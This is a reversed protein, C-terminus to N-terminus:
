KRMTKNQKHKWKIKSRREEKKRNRRIVLGGEGKRMWNEVEPIKDLFGSNEFEKISDKFEKLNEFYKESETEDKYDELYTKWTIPIGNYTGENNEPNFFFYKIKDDSTIEIYLIGNNNDLSNFLKKFDKNKEFKYNKDTDESFYPYMNNQSNLDKYCIWKISPELIEDKYTIPFSKGTKRVYKVREKIAKILMGLRWISFHGWLWQCHYIYIGGEKNNGNKENWYKRPTRIIIQFRQGM